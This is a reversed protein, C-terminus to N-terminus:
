SPGDGGYLGFTVRGAPEGGISVDFFVTCTTEAMQLDSRRLRSASPARTPARLVAGHTGLLSLVLLILRM